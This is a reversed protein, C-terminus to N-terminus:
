AGVERCIEDAQSLSMIGKMTEPDDIFPEYARRLAAKAAICCSRGDLGMDDLVQWVADALARIQETTAAATETPQDDQYRAKAYSSAMLADYGPPMNM